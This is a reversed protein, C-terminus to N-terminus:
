PGALVFVPNQPLANAGNPPTVTSLPAPLDLVPADDSSRIVATSGSDCKGAFVKSSDASAAASFRFRVGSLVGAPVGLGSTDCGTPTATSVEVVVTGDGNQSSAKTGTSSVVTFTGANVATLTFTGNNGPDGMGSVVMEMGPRLAPGSTLMYSYTTTPFNSSTNPGSPSADTISVTSELPVTKRVSGDSANIVAVQSSICLQTDLPDSTCPPIKTSGAAYARSGDPLVAVAAPSFAVPAAFLVTPPDSSVNLATVTNATPNTIYLRNLKGDYAMYNAGAGVPVSSLLTDTTTNITSVTGSGSNLVYIRASDSRAVAWVPTAGTRITANGNLSRDITNISTVSDTGQNVVYLKKGDPTEALAVPKSNPDPIPQTPDVRILNTVVNSTTSIAAVTGTGFNAAYVTGSETTHVFVPNSGAPLSTTTVSTATSGPTPSYSSVSDERTNVAYVRTGSPVLTAHAPGLGLQAVGINTDGSVDLRSSAGPDNAGNVSFVLVFHVGQPDPPPAVIPVAVPRYQDGCSVCILGLILVGLLRAARWFNMRVGASGDM